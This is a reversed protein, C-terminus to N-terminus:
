RDMDRRQKEAKHRTAQLRLVVSSFLLGVVTSATSDYVPIYWQYDMKWSADYCIKHKSRTVFGDSSSSESCHRQKLRRSRSCM